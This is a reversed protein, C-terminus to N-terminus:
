MPSIFSGVKLCRADPRRAEKPGSRFIKSMIWLNKPFATPKPAIFCGMGRARLPPMTPMASGRPLNLSPLVTQLDFTSRSIVKLVDATATQQQLSERLEGLLRTNEIAIVAQAAFNALLDVQKDTFPCVEKRYIVIAGVLEDDKLMPVCVLTRIGAIDVSAVALPHGDEYARDERLDAVQLPKRSQSMRTLPSHPGPDFAMRSQWQETFTSPLAGHFAANRFENGDRLWMAGYSADCIRTANELMTHFASELEGPSSSIVKLVESTATQQELSESLERTRAQVEEFLRVNQIAIVAQDAFTKVLEIQKDTFPRVEARRVTLSGIAEGERLLPVSLITRHGLRIAMAHGDPFEDPTATLDHVHVPKADIVARGATWGRTLPWKDFDMPMPGHHAGFVLWEGERLLIVSDYGDCLRVASEVLTNLVASLDLTSRSIVKLVDATATQQQLSERLENLLRANEIAIVAQAAFNELLAIQKDTFPKVEQRYINIGGILEDDKLMPVALMSRARAAKILPSSAFASLAALDLIHVRQKTQVLTAVASGQLPVIPNAKRIKEFEPPANHMAVVRLNVRDYLVLNAFRAGCIRVANDLISNFVAQVEGPSSSIVKLVESTATQQEL